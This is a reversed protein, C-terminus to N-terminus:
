YRTVLCDMQYYTLEERVIYIQFSVIVAHLVIKLTNDQIHVKVEGGKEVLSKSFKRALQYSHKEALNPDTSYAVPIEEASGEGSKASSSDWGTFAGVLRIVKSDIGIGDVIPHGGPTPRNKYRMRTLISLGETAGPTDNVGLSVQDLNDVKISPLMSFYFQIDIEGKNSPDLRTISFIAEDPNVDELDPEPSDEETPTVSLEIPDSSSIGSDFPTENSSITLPDSSSLGRDFVGRDSFDFEGEPVNTTDFSEEPEVTTTDSLGFITSPSQEESQFSSPDVYNESTREPSQFLM